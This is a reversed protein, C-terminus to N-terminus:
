APFEALNTVLVRDAGAAVLAAVMEPTPVDTMASLGPIRQGPHKIAYEVLEQALVEVVAPDAGGLAHFGTGVIIRDAGALRITGALAHLAADDLMTPELIVALRAPHPVAERVAILEALVANQDTRAIVPDLVVGVEIAGYQVALRAESAKILTHHKGSPFGAVSGLVLGQSQAERASNLLSPAVVVGGLGREAAIRVGAAVDAASTEPSLFTLNLNSLLTNM